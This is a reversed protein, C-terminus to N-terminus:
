KIIDKKGQILNKNKLIENKMRGDFNIPTPINMLNLVIAAIDWVNVKSSIKCNSIPEGHVMFIGKLSHDGNREGEKEIIKGTKNFGGAVTYGNKPYLVIDPFKGLDGYINEGKEVLEFLNDGTQIDKFKILTDILKERTKEYNIRPVSGQSERDDVNIQIVGGSAPLFFAKTEKWNIRNEYSFTESPFLKALFTLYKSNKIRWISNRMGLRILLLHISELSPIIKEKISKESCRDNLFGEKKLIENIYIKKEIGRFGHDSCVLLVDEREKNIICWNLFEDAQKYFKFLIEKNNWFYHQIVDLSRVVLSFVKASDKELSYFHKFADIHAETTEYVSDIVFSKDKTTLIKDENFDVNYNPFECVIKEKINLPYSFDSNRSPTGLGTTIIGDFKSPPYFFPINIFISRIGNESLINWLSKGMVDRSSIPRISYSGRRQKVFSWISHKTPKLGTFISTWAAPSLPPLTSYLETYAGENMLMKFTPLKGENTWPKILNWTAGDLGIVIVKRDVM